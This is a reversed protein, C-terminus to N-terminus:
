EEPRSKKRTGVRKGKWGNNDSKRGTPVKAGAERDDAHTPVDVLEEPDLSDMETDEVVPEVDQAGDAHEKADNAADSDVNTKAGPDDTM